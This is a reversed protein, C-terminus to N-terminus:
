EDSWHIVYNVLDDATEFEEGHDNVVRDSGYSDLRVNGNSLLAGCVLCLESRNRVSCQIQFTFGMEGEFDEEAEEQDFSASWKRGTEKKLESVIYQVKKINEDPSSDSDRFYDSVFQGVFALAKFYDTFEYKPGQSTVYNAVKIKGTKLDFEVLLLTKGGSLVQGPYRADNIFCLVTNYAGARKIVKVGYQALMQKLEALVPKVISADINSEIIRKAKM